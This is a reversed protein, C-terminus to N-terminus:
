QAIKKKIFDMSFPVKPQLELIDCNFQKQIMEAIRKTNGTYSHYVVLRKM